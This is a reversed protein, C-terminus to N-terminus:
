KEGEAILIMASKINEKLVALRFRTLSRICNREAIEIEFRKKMFAHVNSGKAKLYLMEKINTAERRVSAFQKELDIDSIILSM